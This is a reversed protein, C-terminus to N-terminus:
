LATTTATPLGDSTSDPPPQSTPHTSTEGIIEPLRDQLARLKVFTYRAYNALDLLELLAEEITDVVLFKGPGYKAEGFEHREECRDDFEESYAELKDLLEEKDIV